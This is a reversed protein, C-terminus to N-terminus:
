ARLANGGHSTALGVRRPLHRQDTELFIVASRRAMGSCVHRNRLHCWLVDIFSRTHTSVFIHDGETVVRGINNSTEVTDKMTDSMRVVGQPIQRLCAMLVQVDNPTIVVEQPECAGISCTMGADQPYEHHLWENIEQLSDLISFSAHDKPLAIVMEGKSAISANAEGILISAVSFDYKKQLCALVTEAAM